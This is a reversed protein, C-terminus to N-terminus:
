RVGRIEGISTRLTFVVAIFLSIFGAIFLLVGVGFFLLLPGVIEGGLTSSILLISSLLLSALSALGFTFDYEQLAHTLPVADAFESSAERYINTLVMLYLAIAPLALAVLQLLRFASEM